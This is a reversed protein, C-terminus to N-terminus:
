IKIQKRTALSAFSRAALSSLNQDAALKATVRTGITQNQMIHTKRETSRMGALAHM